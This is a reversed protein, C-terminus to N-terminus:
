RTFSCTPLPRWTGSQACDLRRPEVSAQIASQPAETANPFPQQPRSFYNASSQELKKFTQASPRFSPPVIIRHHDSPPGLEKCIARMEDRIYQRHSNPM